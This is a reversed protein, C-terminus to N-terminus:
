NKSKISPVDGEIKFKSRRGFIGRPINTGDEENESKLSETFNGRWFETRM